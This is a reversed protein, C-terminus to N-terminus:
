QVQETLGLGCGLPDHRFQGSRRPKLPELDRAAQTAEGLHCLVNVEEASGLVFGLISALLSVFAPVSLLAYYSIAACQNFLGDAFFNSGGVVLARPLQGFAVGYSELKHFTKTVHSATAGSM